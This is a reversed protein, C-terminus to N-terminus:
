QKPLNETKIFTFNFGQVLLARIKRSHPQGIQKSLSSTFCMTHNWRQIKDMGVKVASCMWVYLRSEKQSLMPDAVCGFILCVCPCLCVDQRHVLAQPGRPFSLAPLLSCGSSCNIHMQVLLLILQELLPLSVGPQWSEKSSSKWLEEKVVHYAMLLHPPVVFGKPFFIAVFHLSSDSCCM